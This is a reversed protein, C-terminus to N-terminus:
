RAESASSLFRKRNEAWTKLCAPDGTAAAGLGLCRKLEARFPDPAASDRVVRAAPEAEDGNRGLTMATATIAVAVLGAPATRALWKCAM